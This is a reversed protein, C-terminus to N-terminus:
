RIHIARSGLHGALGVMAGTTAKDLGHSDCMLLAVAGVFVSIVMECGLEVLSFRKTMGQRMKRFYGACGGLAALGIMWCYTTIVPEKELMRYFGFSLIIKAHNYLHIILNLL